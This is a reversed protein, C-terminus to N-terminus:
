FILNVTSISYLFLCTHYFSCIVTKLLSVHRALRGAWESCCHHGTIYPCCTCVWAVTVNMLWMPDTVFATNKFFIKFIIRFSHIHIHTHPMCHTHPPPYMDTHSGTCDPTNPEGQAPTVPLRLKGPLTSLGLSPNEALGTCARLWQAELGM